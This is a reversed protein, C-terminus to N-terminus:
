DFFAEHLAPVARTVDEDRVMLSLNINNAGHSIMEVNVKAQQLAGFVRAAVGSETRLRRGVICILTRESAVSVRGFTALEELLPAGEVNQRTTMSVTVESTSIMDVDIESRGLVDFVRALFGPQGLMTSSAITIISAGEKYAISTVPGEPEPADEVIVTGPHEPRNTNMVRVPIKSKVAPILTSPHLVRGGYLALESAEAFSMHPISRATTCISPDATMVGDTDTWIECEEAGLAAALVTATFDSGNRGVTTIDGGRSKGIFGTVVPVTGSETEVAFRANIEAEHGSLPRARGFTTDTIFGLDFADYARAKVGEERLVHAVTRASMREGFSSVLDRVRPSVEKLLAIGKLTDELEQYLGELTKPPLGVSEAIRRQLEIPELNMVGTSALEASRVLANTVGKHASCVMVPSREMRGGVIRAAKEIQAADALSSGGFKMVLM